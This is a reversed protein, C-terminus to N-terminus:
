ASNLKNFRIEFLVHSKYMYAIPRVAAFNAPFAKFLIMNKRHMNRVYMRFRSRRWLKDAGMAALGEHPNAIVFIMYSNMAILSGITTLSTPRTKFHFLFEHPMISSVCIDSRVDTRDASFREGSFMMERNVHAAMSTFPRIGARQTPFRKHLIANQFRMYLGRMRHWIWISTSVYNLMLIKMKVKM